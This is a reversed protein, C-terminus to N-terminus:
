TAAAAAAALRMWAQRCAPARACRGSARVAHAEFLYDHDPVWKGWVWHNARPTWPKHPGSWHLIRASEVCHKPLHTTLIGLGEVNWWWDMPDFKSAFEVGMVLQTGMFGHLVRSWRELAHTLSGSRWAEMNYLLVGTSFTPLHLSQNPFDWHRRPSKHAFWKFRERLDRLLMHGKPIFPRAALANRMRMQYLPRVDAAVITDTDLWLARPVDPLYQHLYYRVYNQAKLLEHRFWPIELSNIDLPLPQLEHLTVNPIVSHDTLVHRFVRVVQNALGMDDKSVILHIVCENPAELHRALSIMSSVLGGFARADGSYVVHITGLLSRMAADELAQPHEPGECNDTLDNTYGGFNRFIGGLILLVVGQM